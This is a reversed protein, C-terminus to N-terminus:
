RVINIEVIDFNKKVNGYERILNEIMSETIIFENKVDQAQEFEEDSWDENDLLYEVKIDM